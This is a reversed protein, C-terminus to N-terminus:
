NRTMVSIEREDVPLCHFCIQNPSRFSGCNLGFHITDNIMTVINSKRIIDQHCGFLYRKLLFVECDGFTNIALELCIREEYINIVIKSKLM